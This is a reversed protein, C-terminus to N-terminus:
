SVLYPFPSTQCPSHSPSLVPIGLVRRAFKSHGFGPQAPGLALRGHMIETQRDTQRDERRGASGSSKGNGQYCSFNM